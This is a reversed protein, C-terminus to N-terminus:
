KWGCCVKLCIRYLGGESGMEGIRFKEYPKGKPLETGHAKERGPQYMWRERECRWLFVGRMSAKIAYSADKMEIMM